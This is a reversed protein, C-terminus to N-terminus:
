RRREPELHAVVADVFRDMDQFWMAHGAGDFRMTRAHRRGVRKAIVAANEPPVVVDESGFTVLMPTKVRALGKWTRNDRVFATEAEGQRVITEASVQEQPISVYQQAFAGRAEPASAPFILDLFDEPPIDPDNLEEFIQDSPQIAHPGGTDGGTTVLRRAVGPHRVAMTLAIEGGMSWGLVDPRRLGLAKVLAATDDALLPITMPVSLEDTSYVVGRNDFLTVRFHESLLQPFTTGWLSMTATDGTVVLLDPGAGFQRYGIDIGNARVQRVPGMFAGAGPLTSDPVETGRSRAPRDAADVAVPASALAVAVLVTAFAARFPM